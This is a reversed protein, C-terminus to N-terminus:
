GNQMRLQSPSMGFQKKFAHSFHSLNEFGTELYVDVPKRDTKLLQDRALELRKQTLWRQPSTQYIKQFDRKFTTLSRGTLFGFRELPMNFMFNREMFAELDIKYPDSFNGLVQDIGADTNRLITIAEKIKLAAVESPIKEKLEFYPVLSALCGDLLPHRDFAYVGLKGKDTTKLGSIGYIERLVELSLHMAVAQHPQGGSPYNIITALQNRPILFTSGSGFRLSREAELIKTEGSILWVLLHEDFAAETRFLRGTYSSLKIKPHIYEVEYESEQAM